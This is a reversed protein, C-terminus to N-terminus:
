YLFTHGSFSSMVAFTVICFLILLFSCTKFVFTIKNDQSHHQIEQQGASPSLEPFDLHKATDTGELRHQIVDSVIVGGAHHYSFLTNNNTTKQILRLGLIKVM